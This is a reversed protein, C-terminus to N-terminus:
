VRERCSARGIESDTVQMWNQCNMCQVLIATGSAIAAKTREQGQLAVRQGGGIDVTRTREAEESLTSDVEGSETMAAARAVSTPARQQSSAAGNARDEFNEAKVAAIAAENAQKEKQIQEMIARQEEMMKRREEPSMPMGDLDLGAMDLQEEDM